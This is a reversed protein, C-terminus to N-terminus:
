REREEIAKRLRENEARLDDCEKALGCSVIYSIVMFVFTASWGIGAVVDFGTM